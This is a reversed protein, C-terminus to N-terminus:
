APPRDAHRMKHSASADHCANTAPNITAETDIRTRVERLFVGVVASQM